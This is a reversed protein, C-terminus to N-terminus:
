IGYGLTDHGGPWIGHYGFYMPREAVVPQDSQIMVSVNKNLGIESAVNQTFRKEGDVTITVAKNPEGEMMYTFTVQAPNAGPNLVALYTDFGPITCGEAFFFSSTPGACGMVNHGGPWVSHYNFYMPREVLIPENSEIKFSTDVDSGLKLKVDVTQRTTAGVTITQNQTGANETWYTINVTADNAGPNQICIWEEFVGDAANDRTTGEAFFFTRAAAPAGVVNHGGTWKNRYNFYMPREAIIPETSQLAASVDHNEGVDLNVDITRRSTAKVDYQKNVTTGTELMYTVDVVADTPGPNQICLWEEYSGDFQNDRTTGEAFLWHDRPQNVGMVIHGGTWKSRYNFYMPREVLIPWNSEVVTSVDKDDGVAANVDVTMRSEKPVNVNQNQTMGNDFMYTIRVGADNTGPNQICLWEEYSGDAPNDRTTGEAFYWTSSLVPTTWVEGGAANLTTGILKGRYEKVFIGQNTAASGFGPQSLPEFNAAALKYVRGSDIFNTTALYLDNGNVCPQVFFDNVGKEIGGNKINNWNTGDYAWLECGETGSNDGTGLYLVGTGPNCDSSGMTQNASWSGAGPVGIQNFGTGDYEWVELGTAQNLVPLILKGNFITGPSVAENNPNGFGPLILGGPGALVTWAAGDFEYVRLGPNPNGGGPRNAATVVLKGNVVGQPFITDNWAGEGWGGASQPVLVPNGTGNWTYLEAGTNGNATGIYLLDNYVATPHLGTTSNDGFGPTGVPTFQTGDYSYLVTPNVPALLGFFNTSYIMQNGQFVEGCALHFDNPDTIGKDAEMTWSFEAASAGLVPVFALIFGVCTVLATIKRFGPRKM